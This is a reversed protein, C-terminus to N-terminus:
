PEVSWNMTQPRDATSQETRAPKNISNGEEYEAEAAAEQDEDNDQYGGFDGDDGPQFLFRDSVPLYRHFVTLLPFTSLGTRYNGDTKM